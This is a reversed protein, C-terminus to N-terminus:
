RTSLDSALAPEPIGASQPGGNRPGWSRRDSRPRRSGTPSEIEDRSDFTRPPVRAHAPPLSSEGALRASHVVACAVGFTVAAPAPQALCIVTGLFSVSPM